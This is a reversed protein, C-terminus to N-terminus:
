NRMEKKSRSLINRHEKSLIGKTNQWNLPLYHTKILMREKTEIENLAESQWEVICNEDMFKNIKEKSSSMRLELLGCLTSRLSSLRGNEVGTLHFNSSDHIHYKILRDHGKKAKGIYLLAYNEGEINKIKLKENDSVNSLKKLLKNLSETKFWWYYIIPENTIKINKKRIEEVRLINM